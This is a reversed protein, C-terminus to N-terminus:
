RREISLGQTLISARFGWAGLPHASLVILRLFTSFLKSTGKRQTATLDSAWNGLSLLNSTIFRNESSYLM